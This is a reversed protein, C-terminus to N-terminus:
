CDVSHFGARLERTGPTGQLSRAPCLPCEMAFTPRWPHRGEARSWSGGPGAGENEHEAELGGAGGPLFLLRELVGRIGDSGM